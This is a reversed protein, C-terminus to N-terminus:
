FGYEQNLVLEAAYATLSSLLINISNHTQLQYYTIVLYNNCDTRDDKKCLNHQFGVQLKFFKRTNELTVLDIQATFGHQKGCLLLTNWVKCAFAFNM